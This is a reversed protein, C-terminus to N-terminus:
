HSLHLKGMYVTAFGGKGLTKLFKFEQIQPMSKQYGVRFQDDSIYCMKLPLNWQLYHAIPENVKTLFLDVQENHNDNTSLCVPKMSDPLKNSIVIQEFVVEHLWKSTLQDLEQCVL